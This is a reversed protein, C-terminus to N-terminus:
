DNFAQIVANIMPQGDNGIHLVKMTELDIVATVPVTPVEVPM